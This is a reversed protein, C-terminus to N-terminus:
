KKDKKKDSKQESNNKSKAKDNGKKADKNKDGKKSKSKRPPFFRFRKIRKSVLGGWVSFVNTVKREEGRKVKEKNEKKTGEEQVKKQDSEEEKKEEVKMDEKKSDWSVDVKMDPQIEASVKSPNIKLELVMEVGKKGVFNVVPVSVGGADWEEYEEYKFEPRVIFYFILIPFNLILTMLFFALGVIRNNFRKWSDIGVWLSIILWLVFFYTFCVTFLADFNISQENFDIIRGLFEEM